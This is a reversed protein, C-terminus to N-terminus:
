TPREKDPASEDSVSPRVSQSSQSTPKLGPYALSMSVYKVEWALLGLHTVIITAGLAPLSIWSADRVLLVAAMILALRILYGFLVAAMMLGLSIRATVAILTASLAFNVLILAVGYASSLAGDGGWLLGCVAILVPAAVLGRKIIDRSVEVEPAPGEIRTVFTSETSAM